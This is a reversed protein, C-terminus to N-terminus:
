PPKKIESFIHFNEKIIKAAFQDPFDETSISHYAREQAEIISQRTPLGNKRLQEENTTYWEDLEGGEELGNALRAPNWGPLPLSDLEEKRKKKYEEGNPIETLYHYGHGLEHLQIFVALIEPTMDKPDIGIKQASIEVSVRRETMLKRYHEVGSEANIVVLPKKEFRESQHRAFGGTKKLVSYENPGSIKIDVDFLEPFKKLALEYARAFLVGIEGSQELKKEASTIGEVAGDNYKVEEEDKKKGLGGEEFVEIIRGQEDRKVAQYVGRERDKLIAFHEGKELQIFKGEPTTVGTEKIKEWLTKREIRVNWLLHRPISGGPRPPPKLQEQSEQNKNEQSDQLIETKM